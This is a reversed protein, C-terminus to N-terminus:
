VPTRGSSVARQRFLPVLLYGALCTLAITVGLPWTLTGIVGAAHLTAYSVLLLWAPVIRYNRDWLSSILFLAYLLALPIYSHTVLLAALCGLACTAFLFFDLPRRM